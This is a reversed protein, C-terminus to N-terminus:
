SVLYLTIGTSIVALYPLVKHITNIFKPANTEASVLGGTVVLGLFTIVACGVAAIQAPTLPAAKNVMVVKRVLFIGLGLGILKHVNLLATSYPKGTRGLWFGFIFIFLFAGGTTLSSSTLLNM